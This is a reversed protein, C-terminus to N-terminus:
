YKLQSTASKGAIMGGVISELLGNGMLRNEGHLGTTIEGALFLGQIKSEGNKKVKFGGLYYHLVPQIFIEEFHNKFLNELKPIVSSILEKKEKPVVLKFGWEGDGFEFARGEEFAKNMSKVTELRDLKPDCVRIGDKDLIEISFNTITEPINKGRMKEPIVIGFPQYQYLDKDTEKFGIKELLKYIKHNSNFPNTTRKGVRKAYAYTKGGTALILTSVNISEMSNNINKKSFEKGMNRYSIQFTNKGRKEMIKIDEVQCKEHVEINKTSIVRKRLANILIPGIKDTASIIRPSSLGGAHRRVLTGDEELDFKVGLDLLYNMADNINKVFYIIREKSASGRGSKLMDEVMASRDDASDKPVQIGGQAMLSNSHGLKGDTIITVPNSNSCSLAAMMGAAGSGIVYVQGNSSCDKKSITM